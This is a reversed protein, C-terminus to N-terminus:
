PPARPPRDPCRTAAASCSPCGGRAACPARRCGPPGAPPPRGGGRIPAAVRRRPPARREERPLRRPSNRSGQRYTVPNAPVTFAHVFQCALDRQDGTTRPTRAPRDRHLQRPRSGEDVDRAARGALVPRLDAPRLGDLAGDFQDLLR